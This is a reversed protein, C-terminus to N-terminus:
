SNMAVNEGTEKPRGDSYQVSAYTPCQCCRRHMSTINSGNARFTANLTSVIVCHFINASQVSIDGFNEGRLLHFTGNLTGAM